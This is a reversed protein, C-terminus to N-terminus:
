CTKVAFNEEMEHMQRELSENTGKLMDVDCTFSQAQRRYGNSEQHARHLVNNNWNAAESLDALKSKYWQEAEQLNKAPM